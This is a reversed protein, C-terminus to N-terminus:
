CRKSFLLCFVVLLLQFCHFFYIYVVAIMNRRINLKSNKECFKM